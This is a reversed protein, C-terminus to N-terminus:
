ATVEDFVIPLGADKLYQIVVNNQIPLGKNLQHVIYDHVVAFQEATLDKAKSRDKPFAPNMILIRM